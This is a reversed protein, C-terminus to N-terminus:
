GKTKQQKAKEAKIAAYEQELRPAAKTLQPCRMPPTGNNPTGIWGNVCEVCQPEACADCKDGSITLDCRVAAGDPATRKHDDIPLERPEIPTVTSVGNSNTSVGNSNAYEGYSDHRNQQHEGYSDLDIVVTAVTVLQNLKDLDITRRTPTNRGGARVTKLIELHTALAVVDAAVDISLDGIANAIQGLSDDCYHETKDKNRPRDRHGIYALVCKFARVSPRHLKPRDALAQDLMKIVDNPKIDYIANARQSTM